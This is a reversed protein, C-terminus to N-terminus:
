PLASAHLHLTYKYVCFVLVVLVICYVIFDSVAPILFELLFSLNALSKQNKSAVQNDEMALKLADKFYPYALRM